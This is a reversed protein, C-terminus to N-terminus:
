GLRAQFKLHPGGTGSPVTEKYGKGCYGGTLELDDGVM